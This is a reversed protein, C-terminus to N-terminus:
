RPPRKQLHRRPSATWKFIKKPIPKRPAPQRHIHTVNSLIFTGPEVIGPGQPKHDAAQVAEWASALFAIPKHSHKFDCGEYDGYETAPNATLFAIGAVMTTTSDLHWEQPRQQPFSLM